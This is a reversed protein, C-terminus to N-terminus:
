RPDRGEDAGIPLALRVEDLRDAIEGGEAAVTDGGVSRQDAHSGVARDDPGLDALALPLLEDLQFQVRAAGVASPDVPGRLDPGPVHQPDDAGDQERGLVKGQDLAIGALPAPEQVLQDGGAGRAHGPDAGVVVTNELLAVRQQLGGRQGAAVAPAGHVQGGEVDPVLVERTRTGFQQGPSQIQDGRSWGSASLAYSCSAGPPPGTARSYLGDAGPSACM